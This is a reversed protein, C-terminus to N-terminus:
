GFMLAQGMPRNSKLGNCRRCACQTNIYTHSGGLSLPIIHDLEPARDDYSGRLAQPTKVGCLACRWKDRDFVKIPDVRESDCGKLRARRRAKAIRRGTRKSEHVCADCVKRHLGGNRLAIFEKNCHRCNVEVTLARVPVPRIVPVYWNRAIRRLAEIEGRKTRGHEIRCSQQCFRNRTSSGGLPRHSQKHCQECSFWHAENRVKARYEAWSVSGNKRSQAKGNCRTSCYKRKRGVFEQECVGCRQKQPPTIDKCKVSCYLRKIGTLVSDCVRCNSRICNTDAM